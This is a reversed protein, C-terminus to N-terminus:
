HSSLLKGFDRYRYLKNDAPSVIFDRHVTGHVYMVEFNIFKQERLDFVTTGNIEIKDAVYWYIVQQYEKLKTPIRQQIEDYVQDWDSGVKTELFRKLLSTNIKGNYFGSTKGMGEFKPLDDIPKTKAKPRDASYSGNVM